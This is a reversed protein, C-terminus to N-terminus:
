RANCGSPAIRVTYAGAPLPPMRFTFTDTDKPAFDLALPIEKDGRLLKFSGLQGKETFHLVIQPPSTPLEAKDAPTSHDLKAHAGSPAAALLAVLTALALLSKTM